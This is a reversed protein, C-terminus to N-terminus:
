FAHPDVKALQNMLYFDALVFAAVNSVIPVARPLVCPDHRGKGKIVAPNNHKDITDQEQNITPVPKFGIEVTIPMGNSVGGQIGGSHNTKTKVSGNEAYYIDNYQSGTMRTSQLGSGFSVYRVAPINMFAFSLYADLKQYIPNGLGAPPNKVILQIIGGLSDNNRKANQIQELAKEAMESSIMRVDNSFVKRNLDEITEKSNEYNNQDEISGISKVYAFIEIDTTKKLYLGAISGAAVLSITTRASSRGGGRYDRHGYKTFYGYDAHSPRFVDKLHSYDKSKADSNEVLFAISTGTSLNEFVGSLIKIRDAEKRPSSVKSNGPKRKDLEAQIVTEDIDVGAPFNDIVGGIASGHSEGFSTLTLFNGIINSM